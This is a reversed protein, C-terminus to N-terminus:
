SRGRGKVEPEPEKAFAVPGLLLREFITDISLAGQKFVRAQVIGLLEEKSIRSQKNKGLETYIANALTIMSVDTPLDNPRGLIFGFSSMICLLLISLEDISIQSTRNFDFLDFVYNFRNVENRKESESLCMVTTMFTLANIVGTDNKAHSRIMAKAEDVSMGTLTMILAFDIGFDYEGDTYAKIVTVAKMWPWAQIPAFHDQLEVSSSVGM